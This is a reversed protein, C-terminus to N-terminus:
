DIEPIFHEVEPLASIILCAGNKPYGSWQEAGVPAGRLEAAMEQLTDMHSVIVVHKGQFTENLVQLFSRVRERIDMYGEIHLETDGVTRGGHTKMFELFSKIPKGEFKGFQPECLRMDFSLPVQLTKELIEASEMTRRLPSAVIFDVPKKKLFESLTQIQKRGRETLVYEGKPTANLVGLINNEAEGHRVLYYTNSKYIPQM